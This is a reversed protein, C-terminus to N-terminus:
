QIKFGGDEVGVIAVVIGVFLRAKVDRMLGGPVEVGRVAEWTQFPRSRFDREASVKTDVAIWDVVTSLSLISGAVPLWTMM